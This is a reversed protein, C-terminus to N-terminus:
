PKRGMQVIGWVLVGGATCLVGGVVVAILWYAATILAGVKEALGHLDKRVEAFGVDGAGLRAETADARDELKAIRAEQKCAEPHAPVAPVAARSADVAKIARVITETEIDSESM